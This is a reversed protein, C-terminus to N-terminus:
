EIETMTFQTTQETEGTEENKTLTMPCFNTLDDSSIVVGCNHACLGNATYSSDDLVTLNYMERTDDYSEINLIRTWILGDEFFSNNMKIFCMCAIPVGIYDGVKLNSVELWQPISIENELQQRVYM